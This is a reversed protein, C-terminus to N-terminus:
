GPSHLASDSAADGRAGRRRIAEILRAAVQRTRDSADERVAEELLALAQPSGVFSMARMTALRLREDPHFLGVVWAVRVRPSIELAVVGLRTVARIREAIDKSHIVIACLASIPITRFASEIEPLLAGVGAGRVRLFRERSVMVDEVYHLAATHDPVTWVEEYTDGPIDYLKYLIWGRARAISRLGERTVEDPLILRAEPAESMLIERGAQIAV